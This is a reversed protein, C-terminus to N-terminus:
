MKLLESLPTATNQYPVPDEAGNKHFALRRECCAGCRGCALSESTYCTRTLHFPANLAIGKWVIETKDLSVFPAELRVKEESAIGYVCDMYARWGPRCDPYIAHDGIHIGIFVHSAGITQALGLLHAAFVTNRGPVVTAKMSEHEYHGEPIDGGDHMLNSAIGRFGGSLDVQRHATKYFEAIKAASWNEEKNHKSGYYFSVTHIEADPYKHKLEALLVCSDLGGSLCVIFKQTM